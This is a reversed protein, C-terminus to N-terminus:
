NQLIFAGNGVGFQFTAATNFNHIGGQSIGATNFAGLNTV